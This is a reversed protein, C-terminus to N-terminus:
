IADIWVFRHRLDTEAKDVVVLKGVSPTSHDYNPLPLNLSLAKKQYYDEKNPHHPSVANLAINWRNQEIVKIIIEICDEQHILNIPAKPNKINSRGALMKIPHRDHGVLGGFRIITTDFNKNQQLLQEVEILQRGVESLSNPISADNITANDDDFVSTSSIFILKKVFSQEIYPICNNIKRVFNEKNEGRLKPPIDIILVDSNNLFAAINGSINEQTVQILFPQIGHQKLVDLKQETTTSGSVTVHHSILKKALPLGLWGCGLIAIKKM